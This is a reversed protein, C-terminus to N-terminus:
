RADQTDADWWGLNQAGIAALETKTYILGDRQLTALEYEGSMTIADVPCVQACMGCFLCRGSRLIFEALERDGEESPVVTMELCSTPCIRACLGCAVCLPEGTEPDARLSPLGRFRPAMQRKEEPYQITVNPTFLRRFTVWFGKVEDLM